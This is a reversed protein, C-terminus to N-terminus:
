QQLYNYKHKIFEQCEEKSSNPNELQWEMISNLIERFIPGPKISLLKKFIKEM